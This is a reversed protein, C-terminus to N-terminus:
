KSPRESAAFRLFSACIFLVAALRCTMMGVIDQEVGPEGTRVLEDCNYFNSKIGICHDLLTVM